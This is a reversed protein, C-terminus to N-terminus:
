LIDHITSLMFRYTVGNPRKANIPYKRSKLAIGCITYDTGNYFFNKGFDEPKLNFRSCHKDWIIKDVNGENNSNIFAELKTRFSNSDFRINGIDLSIGHKTAVTLLAAEIDNRLEGLNSKSFEKM